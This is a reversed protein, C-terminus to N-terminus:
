GAGIKKVYISVPSKDKKLDCSSSFNTFLYYFKYQFAYTMTLYNRNYSISDVYTNCEKGIWGMYCICYGSNCQGHDTCGSLCGQRDIYLIGAGTITLNWLLVSSVNYTFIGLYWDSNNLSLYHKQSMTVWSFVDQYDANIVWKESNGLVSPALGSRAVFLSESYSPSYLSLIVQYYPFGSIDLDKFPLILIQSDQTVDFRLSESSILLTKLFLISFYM